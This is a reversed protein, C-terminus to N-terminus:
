KAFYRTWKAAGTKKFTGDMAKIARLYFVGAEQSAARASIGESGAAKVVATLKALVEEDSLRPGRPGGRGSSAKGKRGTPAGGGGLNSQLARVAQEAEKARAQLLSLKKKRLEALKEELVSIHKDLIKESQSSGKM